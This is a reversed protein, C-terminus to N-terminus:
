GNSKSRAFSKLVSSHGVIIQPLRFTALNNGLKMESVGFAQDTMKATCGTCRSVGAVLLLPEGFQVIQHFQADHPATTCSTPSFVIASTFNGSM